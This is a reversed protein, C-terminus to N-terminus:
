AGLLVRRSEGLNGRKWRAHMGVSVLALLPVMSVLFTPNFYPPGVSLSGLGLIDSLFPAMNGGFIVFTAIVLLINNFLLFAERSMLDFGAQSRLLPARWVYLTLAGGIM